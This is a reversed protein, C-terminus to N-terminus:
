SLEKIQKEISKISNQTDTKSQKILDLAQALDQKQEDNSKISQSFQANINDKNEIIHKLQQTLELQVMNPTHPQYGFNYLDKM